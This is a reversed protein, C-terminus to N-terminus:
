YGLGTLYAGIIEEHSVYNIFKPFPASAGAYSTFYKNFTTM